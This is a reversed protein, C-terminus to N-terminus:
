SSEGFHLAVRLLDRYNIYGDENIDAFWNWNPKTLTSGFATALLYLDQYNVRGDGNIDGLLILNGVIKVSHTSHRYRLYLSSHTSNSTLTYTAPLGGVSVTFPTRFTKLSITINLFGMTGVPGTINFTVQKMQASFNFSAITSNSFIGIKQTVRDRNFIDRNFSYIRKLSWFEVLPRNDVGQAPLSTDGIGDGNLDKGTYGSWFNGEAGNDWNNTAYTEIQVTNNVFNNRAITNGGSDAYLGEGNNSITNEIISNETSTFPSEPYLYVGCVVNSIITNERITNGSSAYLRVGYNNESFTNFSINNGTSFFVYVGHLNRELINSTILNNNSGYEIDIGDYAGGGITGKRLTFGSISVGSATIDVVRGTGSADIITSSQNEGVLKVTKNMVVDEYYIGSTVLITDGPNAANIAKQITSYDDPVKIVGPNAKVFSVGLSTTSTVLLVLVCLTLATSGRM